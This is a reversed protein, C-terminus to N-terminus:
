DCACFLSITKSPFIALGDAAQGLAIGLSPFAYDAIHIQSQEKLCYYSGFLISPDSILQFKLHPNQFHCSLYMGERYVHLITAREVTSRPLM